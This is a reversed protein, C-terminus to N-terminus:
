FWNKNLIHCCYVWFVTSLKLSKRSWGHLQCFWGRSTLDHIRWQTEVFIDEKSSVSNVLVCSNWYTFATVGYVVASRRPTGQVHCTATQRLCQNVLTFSDAFASKVTRCYIFFHNTSFFWHENWSYFYFFLCVLSDEDVITITNFYFLSCCYMETQQM